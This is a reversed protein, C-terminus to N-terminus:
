NTVNYRITNYVLSIKYGMSGKVHILIKLSILLYSIVKVTGYEELITLYFSANEAHAGSGFGSGLKSLNPMTLQKPPPNFHDELPILGPYNPICYRGMYYGSAYDSLAVFDSQPPSTFLWVTFNYSSTGYDAISQYKFDFSAGPAIAANNEPAVIKPTAALSM